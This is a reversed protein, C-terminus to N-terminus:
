SLLSRVFTRTARDAEVITELDTAPKLNQHDLARQILEPIRTFAVTGELFGAVAVENAANLVVPATGGRHLAEYALGLCPFRTLDPESFSMSALKPFDVREGNMPWREPFTLAYQIPLKMDPLGLQAKVSGDVFEVMSHIISQPHVVVKIRDAPLRFLWHAEIVELGKNMLTASDITIKPGMNWNPHKLADGVTISGFQDAPLDRFPGGSATLILEAITTQDEGVLCQFIASHESDVPILLVGYEKVLRMIMEGGVVLTEKNALAITKKHRIAAITPRLGVFGVLASLVVDVDDRSVAQELGSAGVYVTTDPSVEGRVLTESRPDSVVIGTPHFEEAQEILLQINSHATLVTAKFREPHSRIIELANRGISGTSGLIAINRGPPQMCGSFFTLM